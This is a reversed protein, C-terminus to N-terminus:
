ILEQREMEVEATRKVKVKQEVWYENPIAIYSGEGGKIGDKAVDEIAEEPSRATVDIYTTEYCDAWQGEPIHRLVVFDPM